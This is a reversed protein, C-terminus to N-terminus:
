GASNSGADAQQDPRHMFAVNGGGARAMIYFVAAVARRQCGGIILLVNAPDPGPAGQEFLFM